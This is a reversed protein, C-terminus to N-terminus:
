EIDVPPISTYSKQREISFDMEGCLMSTDHRVRSNPHSPNGSGQCPIPCLIQNPTYSCVGQHETSLPM